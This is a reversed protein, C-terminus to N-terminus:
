NSLRVRIDHDFNNDVMLSRLAGSLSDNAKQLQVLIQTDAPTLCPHLFPFKPDDLRFSGGNSRASDKVLLHHERRIIM